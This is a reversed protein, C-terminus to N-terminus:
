TGPHAGNTGEKGSSAPAKSCDSKGDSPPKVVGGGWGRVRVGSVGGVVEKKRELYVVMCWGGRGIVVVARIKPASTMLETVIM